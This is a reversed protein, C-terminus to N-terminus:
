IMLHLYRTSIRTGRSPRTSLTRVREDSRNRGAALRSYERVIRQVFESSTEDDELWDRLRRAPEGNIRIMAGAHKAQPAHGYYVNVVSVGGSGGQFGGVARSQPPRSCARATDRCPRPFSATACSRLDQPSTPFSHNGLHWFGTTGRGAGKEWGAPQNASRNGDALGNAVHWVVPRFLHERIVPRASSGCRGSPKNRSLRDSPGPSERRGSPSDFGPAGTLWGRGLRNRASPAGQRDRVDTSM